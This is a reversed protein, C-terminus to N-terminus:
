VRGHVPSSRHWRRPCAVRRRASQRARPFSAHRCGFDSPQSPYDFRMIPSPPRGLDFHMTAVRRLAQHPAAHPGTGCARPPPPHTPPPHPPPSSVVDSAPRRSAPRWSCDSGRPLRARHSPCLPKTPPRAGRATRPGHGPRAPAGAAAPAGGNSHGSRRHQPAPRAGRSGPGTLQPADAYGRRGATAAALAIHACCSRAARLGRSLGDGILGRRDGVREAASM